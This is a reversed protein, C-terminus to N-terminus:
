LTSIVTALMSIATATTATPRSITPSPAGLQRFRSIAPTIVPIPTALM